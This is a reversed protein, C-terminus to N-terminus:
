AVRRYSASLESALWDSIVTDAAELSLPRALTADFPLITAIAPTTVAVLMPAANLERAATVLDHLLRVSTDVIIVDFTGHALRWLGDKIGTAVVVRHGLSALLRTNRRGSEYDSEVLLVEAQLDLSRMDLASRSAM